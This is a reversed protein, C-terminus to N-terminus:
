GSALAGSVFKGFRQYLFSIQRYFNLQGSLTEFFLRDVATSFNFVILDLISVIKRSKKQRAFLFYSYKFYLVSIQNFYWRQFLTFIMSIKLANINPQVM